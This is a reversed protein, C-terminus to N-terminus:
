NKANRTLSDDIPSLASRRLPTSTRALSQTQPIITGGTTEKKCVLACCLPAAHRCLHFPRRHRCVRARHVLNELIISPASRPHELGEGGTRDRSGESATVGRRFHKFVHARGHDAFNNIVNMRTFHRATSRRGTSTGYPRAIRAECRPLTGPV